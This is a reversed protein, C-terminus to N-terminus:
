LQSKGRPWDRTLEELRDTAQLDVGWAAKEAAQRGQLSAAFGDFEIRAQGSHSDTRKGGALTLADIAAKVKEEPGTVTIIIRNPEGNVKVIRDGPKVGAIEAPSGP